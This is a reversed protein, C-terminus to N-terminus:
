SSSKTKCTNIGFLANAPCFKIIGTILAIAGITYAIIAWTGSFVNFFALAILVIGLVLRMGRDLGGVNASLNM